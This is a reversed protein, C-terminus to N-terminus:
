RRYPVKYGPRENKHATFFQRLLGLPRELREADDALNKTEGPDTKLDYLEITRARNDAIVKMGDPLVLSQKLRGEAVIPRHLEPSQGRLYPTLSQGLFYGPTPKGFLDLITPGLDILSVPESVERPTTGEPLRLLMPIRLVEDYLTTAHRTSNHEGFAEGHDATVILAARKGLPTTDLWATLRALEADVMAVEGVYRDFDSGKVSSLDYPAHPDLFHIFLFLPGPQRQAQQLRRIAADMLPRAKTYKPGGKVFTEEAFGRVVGYRNVMWVAGAYTVTTVGAARLLDPFRKTTDEHPWVGGGDPLATWTQQSFYTGSFLTSLSYVTQSGPARANTFQLSRDRLAALTPLRDDYRRSHVLDARLADVSLLIVVPHAPMLGPTTAPVDDANKRPTFWEMADVPVDAAQLARFTHLEGLFPPLVSGSNRALGSSVTAPPPVVIAVSAGVAALARAPVRISRKDLRRVVRGLAGPLEAGALSAALLTAGGFALFFHTGPYDNQLVFANVALPAAGLAIGAWRLWPRALWRGAACAIPVGLATVVVNGWLLADVARQGYGEAMREAANEFDDPLLLAGIGLAIASLAAYGLARRGKGWRIWAECLAAGLLGVALFHGADFAHHLARTSYRAPMAVTVAIAIANAVAGVIWAILFAAPGSVRAAAEGSAAAPEAAARATTEGQTLGADPNEAPDAATIGGESSM